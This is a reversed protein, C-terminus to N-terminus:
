EEIAQVMAAVIDLSSILGEVHSRDDLVPLRHIHEACMMRAAELIPTDAAIGQVATSMRASVMQTNADELHVPHREDGGVLAHEQGSLPDEGDSPGESERALFDTATIIGACHGQEDVVPAGSVDHGALLAAAENLTQHPSIEIVHKSMVDGVRLTLLREIASNM